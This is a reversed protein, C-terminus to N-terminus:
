GPVVCQTTAITTSCYYTEEETWWQAGGGGSIWGSYRSIVAAWDTCSIYINYNHYETLMVM